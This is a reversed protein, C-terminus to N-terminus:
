ELRINAGLYILDKWFYPNSKSVCEAKSVTGGSTLSLVGALMAIRHDNPCEIHGEKVDSPYIVMKQDDSEVNVSFSKLTSTITQIRDSEKTKLRKIGEIVTESGAFPAISAISPALDPFDDVNIRIGRLKEAGRVSWSGDEVVTRVGMDRLIKVISHDGEYYPIPYLNNIDIEGGTVVSAIAYFSSLAYDGPIEGEYEKFEGEEVIIKNGKMTVRGGLSNILDITMNIYSKSSVPPIIEIEGGGKLSFAYIFGSIYQSSESGSITVHDTNLKGEIVTPLNTSSFTVYPKLAEIIANLPRRRLSTDGDLLAKGGLIALIPIIMRLTTASGGFYLSSPVKLESKNSIFQFEGKESIGLEKVVERAIQIDDSPESVNKLKVNALLSYLILRIGFSKSTPAKIKGRIISKKIEARM